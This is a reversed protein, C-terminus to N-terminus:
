YDEKAEFRAIEVQEHYLLMDNEYIYLSDTKELAELFSHAQQMGEECSLRTSVIKTFSFSEKDKTYNAKFSNCGDSGHLSRDNIHFVLHVEPQHDANTSEEGNLEVLSWYTNKLSQHPATSSCAALFLFIFMYFIRSM